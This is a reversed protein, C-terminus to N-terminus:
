GNFIPFVIFFFQTSNVMNKKVPQAPNPWTSRTSLKVKAYILAIFNCHKVMFWGIGIVLILTISHLLWIVPSFAPLWSIIQLSMSHKQLLGWVLPLSLIALLYIWYETALGLHKEKLREPHATEAHGHLYKQGKIFVVLGALMGIGALGFGYKWGYTEGLYGCFLPAIWAGLNIGAYFLTFGSDRRPDNEPYLKGVITSINPKLFGVGM